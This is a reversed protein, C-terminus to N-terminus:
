EDYVFYDWTKKRRTTTPMINYVFAQCVLGLDSKMDPKKCRPLQALMAVNAPTLESIAAHKKLVNFHQASRSTIQTYAIPVSVRQKKAVLDRQVLRITHCRVLSPVESIAGDSSGFVVDEIIASSVFAAHIKPLIARNEKCSINYNSSLYAKFNDYMMFSVLTPDTGIGLETDKIDKECTQFLHEVVQYINKDFYTCNPDNSPANATNQKELRLVTSKKKLDTVKREESATCTILFKIFSPSKKILDQIYGNAFRDQSLIIYIDDLFIIRNKQASGNFAELINIRKPTSIFNALRKVLEAHSDLQEYELILCDHGKIAELCKQTKGSGAPGIVVMSSSLPVTLLSASLVFESISPSAM